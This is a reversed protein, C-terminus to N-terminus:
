FVFDSSELSDFYDDLMITADENLAILTGDEEQTITLDQLGDAAKLVIRDGEDRSFDDIWDQGFATGKFTFRDAGDRGRFWNDQNNGIFTDKQETGEVGEINKLRDTTGFGDRVKGKSLDAKIGDYGREWTDQYYQVRDFGGKGDIVDNGRLGVFVNGDGDGKMVDKRNTGVVREIDILKDVKGDPGVAKEKALNVDIGRNPALRAYFWDNYSVSDWSDGDTGIYRDAGGADKIYSGGPGAQVVDNGYGTAVDIGHEPSSPGDFTSDEAVLNSYARWPEELLYLHFLGADVGIDTMAIMLKGSKSYYDVAKIAGSTILTQGASEGYEPKYTTMQDITVKISWPSREADFERGDKDEDYVLKMVGSKKNLSTIRYNELDKYRHHYHQNDTFTVTAM